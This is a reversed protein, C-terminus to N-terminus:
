LFAGFSVTASKKKEDSVRVKAVAFADPSSHKEYSKPKVSEKRMGKTILIYRPNVPISKILPTNYFHEIIANCYEIFCSAGKFQNRIDSSVIQGTKMEIFIMYLKEKKLSILLYDCCKFVGPASNLIKKLSVGIDLKSYEQLPLMITDKPVSSVTLKRLKSLNNRETLTFFREDGIKEPYIIFQETYIDKYKCFLDIPKAM